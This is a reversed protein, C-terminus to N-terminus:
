GTITKIIYIIDQKLSWNRIYVKNISVKDPWIVEKNYQEPDEQQALLNEEDKYKISAPGTIGPRITLIVRDEDKLRDAFGEVDPRPGVFSMTGFLVNFLQPLEDIKTKRFFGGSKTIRSDNITTVTSNLTSSTKMTKIKFVLFPKADKGIRKQVFLGNSKTELSAVIWSLLMIWWTTVIGIVSLVIDFARKQITNISSQM